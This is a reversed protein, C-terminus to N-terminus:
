DIQTNGKQLFFTVIRNILEDGLEEELNIFNLYDLDKLESLVCLLQIQSM